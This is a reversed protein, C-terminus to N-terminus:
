SRDSTPAPWPGAPAAVALPQETSRDDANILAATTRVRASRDALLVTRLDAALRADQLTIAPLSFAISLRVAKEPDTALQRLLSPEPAKGHTLLWAAAARLQASEHAALNEVAILHGVLPMLMILMRAAVSLDAQHDSALLRDLYPRLMAVQDTTRACAGATLVAARYLHGGGLTIRLHSLPHQSQKVFTDFPSLEANPDALRLAATFLQDRLALPLGEALHCIGRLASARNAEADVSAQAHALLHRAVEEQQGPELIRAMTGLRDLGAVLSVDTADAHPPRGIFAAARSRAYEIAAADPIAAYALVRAAGEDGLRARESLVRALEQDISVREALVDLAGDSLGSQSIASILAQRARPALPLHFDYIDTLITLISADILRAQLAGRPVLPEILDLVARALETPLQVILGAMAAFAQQWVQPGLPSQKRGHVLSLAVQALQASEEASRKDGDAAVVALAAAVVWPAPSNLDASVDVPDDLRGCAAAAKAATGALTYNGCAAAYEDVKAYLDGLWNRAGLEDELHGGIRAEWLFRRVEGQARPWDEDHLAQLTARRADYVEGFRTRGAVIMPILNTTKQLDSIPGYIMLVRAISELASRADGQLNEAMLPPLAQRYADISGLPDGFWAQSRGYRAFVLGADGPALLGVRAERTIGVWDSTADAVVLRLRVSIQDDPSAEACAKLDDAAARVEELRQDVLACEAWWLAVRRTWGDGLSRLDDL